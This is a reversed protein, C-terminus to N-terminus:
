WEWTRHSEKLPGHSHRDGDVKCTTISLKLPILSELLLELTNTKKQRSTSPTM